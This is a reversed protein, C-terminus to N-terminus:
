FDYIELQEVRIKKEDNDKVIASSFDEQSVCNELVFEQANKWMCMQGDRKFDDLIERETQFRGFFIEFIKESSLKKENLKKLMFAQFRNSKVTSSNIIRKIENNRPNKLLYRNIHLVM